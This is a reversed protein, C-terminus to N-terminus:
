LAHMCTNIQVVIIVIKYCLIMYGHDLATPLCLSTQHRGASAMNYCTGDNPKCPIKRSMAAGGVVDEM